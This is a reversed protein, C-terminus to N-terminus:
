LFTQKKEAIKCPKIALCKEWPYIGSAVFSTHYPSKLRTTLIMFIIYPIYTVIFNTWFPSLFGMKIAFSTYRTTIKYTSLSFLNNDGKKRSRSKLFGFHHKYPHIFALYIKRLSVILFNISTADELCVQKECGNGMGWMKKSEVKFALLGSCFTLSDFFSVFTTM